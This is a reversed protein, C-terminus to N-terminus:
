GDEDCEVQGGQIVQAPCYWRDTGRLPFWVKMSVHVMRHGASNNQDNNLLLGFSSEPKKYQMLSAHQEMLLISLIM